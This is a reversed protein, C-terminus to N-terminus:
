NGALGALAVALLLVKKIGKYLPEIECNETLAHADDCPAMGTSIAPIGALLAINANNSATPTIPPNDFGLALHVQEATRVLESDRNAPVQSAALRSKADIRVIMKERAAEQEAIQRIQKEFHDIVAQDTSRYDVSFWADAAKANPVDAGGLMGINLNSARPVELQYIRQIARALPLTASYPPTESRTHGGPGIFHIEDHNIGIGSYTFGRYGGDLAIYHQVNQKEAATFVKAGRMSSEEEVTFLFIIDGKTRVQAHDLARLMALMGAINRTDDGVGPAYLRGDKVTAKIRLGPQFVTDLHADVVVTPGGGTGKRTAIINGAADRRIDLKHKKLVKEVAQAREQEFRSPANIETLKIWEELTRKRQDDIHQFSSRIENSAILNDIKGRLPEPSQQTFATAAFLLTAGALRM